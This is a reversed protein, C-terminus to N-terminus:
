RVKIAAVLPQAHRQCCTRAFGDDEGVEDVADVCIALSRLREDESMATLENLLSRPMASKCVRGLTYVNFHAAM